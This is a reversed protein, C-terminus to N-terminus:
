REKHGHPRVREREGLFSSRLDRWTLHVPGEGGSSRSISCCDSCPATFCSPHLTEKTKGHLPQRPTPRSRAQFETKWVRSRQVDTQFSQQKRRLDDAEPISRSKSHASDGKQVSNNSSRPPMAARLNSRWIPTSGANPPCEDRRGPRLLRNGVLRDLPPALNPNTAWTVQQGADGVYDVLIRNSYRSVAAEPVFRCATTLWAVNAKPLAPMAYNDLLRGM